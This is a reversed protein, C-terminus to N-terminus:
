YDDDPDGKRLGEEEEEEEGHKKRKFFGKKYLIFVIIGIILVAGLICLLIIWWAIPEGKKEVKLYPSNVSLFVKVTDPPAGRPRKVFTSSLKAFAVVQKSEKLKDFTAEVLTSM